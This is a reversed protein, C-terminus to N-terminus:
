LMLAILPYPNDIATAQASANASAAALAALTETAGDTLVYSEDGDVFQPGIRKGEALAAELEEAYAEVALIGGAQIDSLVGESLNAAIGWAEPADAAAVSASAAIVIAVLARRMEGEGPGFSAPGPLM